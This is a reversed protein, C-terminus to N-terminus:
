CIMGFLIHHLVFLMNKDLMFIFAAMLRILQTHLFLLSNFCFSYFILAILQKYILHVIICQFWKEQHLCVQERFLSNHGSGLNFQILDDKSTGDVLRGGLLAKKSPAQNQACPQATRMSYRAFAEVVLALYGEM